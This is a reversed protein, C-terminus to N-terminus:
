APGNTALSVLQFFLNAAEPEFQTYGVEDVVMLPYRGLRTLEAQIRDARHAEALRAVWEAATAFLVRHGAQCARMALGIALHTKGTGPTFAVSQLLQTRHQRAVHPHDRLCM